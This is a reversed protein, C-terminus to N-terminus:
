QASLSAVKTSACVDSEKTRTVLRTLQARLILWHGALVMVGCQVSIRRSAMKGEGFALQGVVGFHVAWNALPM